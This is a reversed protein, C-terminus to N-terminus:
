HPNYFEGGDAYLTDEPEYGVFSPWNIQQVNTQDRWTVKWISGPKKSLPGFLTQTGDAVFTDTVKGTQEEGGIIQIKNVIATADSSISLSDALIDFTTSDDPAVVDINFAADDPNTASYWYLSKDSVVHWDALCVSGLNNLAERFTINEFYIDIDANVAFVNTAADFGEGYLYTGFLNQIM